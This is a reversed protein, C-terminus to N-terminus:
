CTQWLLFLNSAFSHSTAKLEWNEASLIRLCFVELCSSVSLSILLCAVTTGTLQPIHILQPPHLATYSETGPMAVVM